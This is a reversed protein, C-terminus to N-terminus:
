SHGRHASEPIEVPRRQAQHAPFVTIFFGMWSIMRARLLDYKELDRAAHEFTKANACTITMISSGRGEAFATLARELEKL